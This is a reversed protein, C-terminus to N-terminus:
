RRTWRQSQCIFLVCGSVKLSGDPNLRLLSKYAKGSEPDYILGKDWRDAKPQFGSLIRLGILPRSRLAPDPNHVDTKPHGPKVVLARAVRGCLSAGCRAIAIVATRDQTVWNGTVDPAAHGPSAAALAALPILWRPMPAHYDKASALVFANAGDSARGLSGIMVSAPMLSMAWIM